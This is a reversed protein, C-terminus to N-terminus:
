GHIEGSITSNSALGRHTLKNWRVHSSPTMLNTNMCSSFTARRQGRAGDRGGEGRGLRTREGGVGGTQRGEFMWSGSRRMGKAERRWAWTFVTRPGTDALWPHCQQWSSFKHCMSRPNCCNRTEPLILFLHRSNLCMTKPVKSQCGSCVWLKEREARCRVM